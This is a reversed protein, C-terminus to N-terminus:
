RYTRDRTILDVDKGFYYSVGVIITQTSLTQDQHTYSLRVGFLNDLFAPQYEVEFTYTDKLDQGGAILSLRTLDSPYWSATLTNSTIDGPNTINTRAWSAALTARTFYYEANASYTDTKLTDTGDALFPASCQSTLKNTNYGIGIRGLKPARAFLNTGFDVGHYGCGEWPQTGSVDSSPTAVLTTDTRSGTLSVGLYKGLPFTARGAFTYFYSLREGSAITDGSQFSLEYNANSVAASDAMAPAATLALLGILCWRARSKTENMIIALRARPQLFPNHVSATVLPSTSIKTPSTGLCARVNRHRTSQQLYHRSNNM